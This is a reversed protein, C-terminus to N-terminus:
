AELVKRAEEEDLVRIANVACVAKRQGNKLEMKGVSVAVISNRKLGIKEALKDLEVTPDPYISLMVPSGDSLIELNIKFVGFEIPPANKDSKDFKRAVEAKFGRVEGVLLPGLKLYRYVENM